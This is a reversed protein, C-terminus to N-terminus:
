WAIEPKGQRRVTIHIENKLKGSNKPLDLTVMKTDFGTIFILINIRCLRVSLFTVDGPGIPQPDGSTQKCAHDESNWQIKSGSPLSPKDDATIKIRISVKKNETNPRAPAQQPVAVPPLLLALLILSAPIGIKCKM